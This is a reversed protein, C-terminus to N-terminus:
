TVQDRWYDNLYPLLSTLHPVPPHLDCDVGGAIPSTMVNTEEQERRGNFEASLRQTSVAYPARAAGDMPLAQRDGLRCRHLGTSPCRFITAPPAPIFLTPIATTAVMMANDPGTNACCGGAAAGGSGSKEFTSILVVLRPSLM